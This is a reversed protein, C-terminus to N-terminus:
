IRRNRGNKMKRREIVNENIIFYRKLFDVIVTTHDVKNGATTNYEAVRITNKECLMFEIAHSKSLSIIVSLLTTMEDDTALKFDNILNSLSPNYSQYDWNQYLYEMVSVELEMLDKITFEEKQTIEM